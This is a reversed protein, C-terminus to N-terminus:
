QAREWLYGWDTTFVENITLPQDDWLNDYSSGDPHQYLYLGFPELVLDTLVVDGCRVTTMTVLITLNSTHPGVQFTGETLNGYGEAIFRAPMGNNVCYHAYTDVFRVAPVAGAGIELSMASADWNGGTEPGPMGCDFYHDSPAPPVGATVCDTTIWMGAARTNSWAPRASAPAALILSLLILLVLALRKMNLGGTWGPPVVELGRRRAANM